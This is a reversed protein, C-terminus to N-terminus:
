CCRRHYNLMQRGSIKNRKNVRELLLSTLINLIYCSDCRLDVGSQGCLGQDLELRIVVEDADHRAELGGHDDLLGAYDLVLQHQVAVTGQSPRRLGYLGDIVSEFRDNLVRHHLRLM